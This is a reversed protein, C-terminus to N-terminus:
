YIAVKPTHPKSLSILDHLGLRQRSLCSYKIMKKLSTAGELMLRTHKLPTYGGGAKCTLNSLIKRNCQNFGKKRVRLRSKNM